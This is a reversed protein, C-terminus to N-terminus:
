AALKSTPNLYRQLEVMAQAFAPHQRLKPMNILASRFFLIRYDLGLRSIYTTIDSFNENNAGTMLHSLVFWKGASDHPVKAGNPDRLVDKLTPVDTTKNFQVFEVAVGSTITGAYLPIKLDTVEKDKILANM